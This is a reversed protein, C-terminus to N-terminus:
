YKTEQSITETLRSSQAPKYEHALAWAAARERNAAGADGLRDKLRALRLHAEFAPADESKSSSGLYDELMRVALAPDRNLEVLLGAGDYLAAAARKDHEAANQGTHLASEMEAWRQRRSLYGALTMWQHAPHASAGIAQRFEREATGQDGREEAIGGRLVHARGADVKELDAAMGRAKDAGGGLVMPAQEYFMGLDFLADASRPNLRVAEEFETRVRKALSYASLFNARAAKQGLARGLWLHYLANQGDMDVAQQCHSAAADWQELTLQVRCQLNHAEAQRGDSPALSNLLALARDAEGAQLAENVRALPAQAFAALSMGALLAAIRTLGSLRV